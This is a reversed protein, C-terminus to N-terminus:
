RARVRLRCCCSGCRWVRGSRSESEKDKAWLAQQKTAQMEEPFLPRRIVGATESIWQLCVRTRCMKNATLKWNHLLASAVSVIANSTPFLRLVSLVDIIRPYVSWVRNQKGCDSQPVAHQYIHRQRKRTCPTYSECLFARLYWISECAGSFVNCKAICIVKNEDSYMQM